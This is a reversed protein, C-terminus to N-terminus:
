MTNNHLSSLSSGFKSQEAEFIVHPLNYSGFFLINLDPVMQHM